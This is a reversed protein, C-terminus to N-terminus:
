FTRQEMNFAALMSEDAENMPTVSQLEGQVIRRTVGEMEGCTILTIMTKNPVEDLLYVDTPEVRDTMSAKYTYVNKLDTLYILDGIKVKELPTFLLQPNQARHSALAYNGAGMKQTPSLTGAGYLLAENALGKFIPLNIEVNPIAIGGIVPLNKSEFQAKVVAETSAPEVADFDFTAEKDMNKEIDKLDANSVSYSSGNQKILFNKIQNNFVLALGILLLCILLINVLWNLSRSKKKKM